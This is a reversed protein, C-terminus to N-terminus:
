RYICLSGKGKLENNACENKNHGWAGCLHCTMQRLAALKPDEEPSHKGAEPWEGEPWELDPWDGEPWDTDAEKLAKIDVNNTCDLMNVFVMIKAKLVALDSASDGDTLYQATHKLTEKDLIGQLM